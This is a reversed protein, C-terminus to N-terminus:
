PGPSPERWRESQLLQIVDSTSRSGNYAIQKPKLWVQLRDFELLTVMKVRTRIEVKVM